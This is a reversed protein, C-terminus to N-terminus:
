RAAPGCLRYLHVDYGRFRDTFRGKEVPLSRGEGLVDAANADQAGAVQFVADTEEHYLSVAFLYTAGGHRKVMMHVPVHPASSKVTAADKVTPSNIVAALSRIQRNLSTVADLMAADALLGAEIFTPKFQHVFYILGRSGHIIAMWVEARVQHPTPKINPNGIRTCEICNWVIKRDATWRRLRSVGHAVYWLSGRVSDNQHVAPYIDFSAIDCGKVYEPYDEPHNTRVGRGHWADWAVGQGLNLM